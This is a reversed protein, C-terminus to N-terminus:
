RLQGVREIDSVDLGVILQEIPGHGPLEAAPDIEAWPVLVFAREHALPHPITLTADSFELEGVVVVDADLTRPGWRVERTRGATEELEHCRRLWFHPDDAADQSSTCLVAINLFDDQDVGGWPPTRYLSSVARVEVGLQEVADALFHRSDGINSGLSLVADSM